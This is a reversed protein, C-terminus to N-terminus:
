KTEEEEFKREDKIVFIGINPNTRSERNIFDEIKTRLKDPDTILHAGAIRKDKAWAKQEDFTKDLISNTTLQKTETHLNGKINFLYDEHSVSKKLAAAYNENNLIHSYVEDPTFGLPMSSESFYQGDSHKIKGLSLAKNFLIRVNPMVHKGSTNDGKKMMDLFEKLNASQLVIGTNPFALWKRIELPDEIISKPANYYYGLDKRQEDSMDKIINMASLIMTFTEDDKVASEEKVELIFMPTKMNSNKSRAVIMGGADNVEDKFVVNQHQCLFDFVEKERKHLENKIVMDENVDWVYNLSWIDGIKLERMYHSSKAPDYDKGWMERESKMIRMEEGGSHRIQCRGNFTSNSAITTNLTIRVSKKITMKIINLKM